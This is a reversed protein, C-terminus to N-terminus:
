EANSTTDPYTIFSDLKFSIPQTSKNSLSMTLIPKDTGMWLREGIHIFSCRPELNVFLGQFTPVGGMSSLQDSAFEKIVPLDLNSLKDPVVGMSLPFVKIYKKEWELRKNSALKRANDDQGLKAKLQEQVVSFDIANAMMVMKQGLESLSQGKFEPRSAPVRLVSKVSAINGADLVARWIARQRAEIEDKVSYFNDSARQAQSICEARSTFYAGGVTLVIASLVWLLFPSNLFAIFEHKTPESSMM